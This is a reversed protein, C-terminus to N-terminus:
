LSEEPLPPMPMWHTLKRWCRDHNLWKNHHWMDSGCWASGDGFSGVLVPTGDRPATDIPMWVSSSRSRIRLARTIQDMVFNTRALEDRLERNDKELEAMAAAPSGKSM